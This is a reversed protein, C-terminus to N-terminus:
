GKRILVNEFRTKCIITLITASFAISDRIVAGSFNRKASLSPAGSTQPWESSPPEKWKFTFHVMYMQLGNGNYIQRHRLPM